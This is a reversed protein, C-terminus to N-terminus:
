FNVGVKKSKIKRKKVAIDIARDDSPLGEETPKVSEITDDSPKLETKEELPKDVIEEITEVLTKSEDDERPIVEVTTLGGKKSKIKRKKVEIDISRDDSPVGEETPKVSEITDDSPKLETTGELPKDGKEEITEVLTKSEDDERPIVEETTLEGKKSKIKRKKVEIDISRDDPPVGEETPKVSEIIDDSPITQIIEAKGVMPKDVIEEITEVLTKSEDDERPIVEETTLGGKKSKIKRKKVEIDISRDDSPVGEEKPKVSEIIDDSLITQIIEAKGVIPKDVIEEITEVLTKSEDDERPIVEETTLGGKKSKIKRKKVSLIQHFIM